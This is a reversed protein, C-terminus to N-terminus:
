PSHIVCGPCGDCQARCCIQARVKFADQYTWDDVRFTTWHTGEDATCALSDERLTSSNAEELTSMPASTAPSLPVDNILPTTTSSPASFSTAACTPDTAALITVEVAAADSCPAATSPALNTQHCSPVASIDHSSAPAGCTQNIVNAQKLTAKSKIKKPATETTAALAPLKVM